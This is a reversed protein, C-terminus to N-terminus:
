WSIDAATLKPLNFEKRYENVKSVIGDQMFTEGDMMYRGAALKVVRHGKKKLYTYPDVKEATGKETEVPRSTLPAPDPEPSPELPRPAGALKRKKWDDIPLEIIFGDEDQESIPCQFNGLERDIHPSVEEPQLNLMGGGHPVGGMKFKGAGSFLVKIKGDMDGSGVFVDCRESYKFGQLFTQAFLLKAKLKKNRGQKAVVMAVMPRSNPIRPALQTWSM